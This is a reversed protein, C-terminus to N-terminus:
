EDDAGEKNDKNQRDKDSDPTASISIGTPTKLNLLDRWDVELGLDSLIAQSEEVALRIALSRDEVTERVIDEWDRGRANALDRPSILLNELAVVDAEAETKPDFYPWGPRSWRHNFLDIGRSAYLAIEQDSYWQRILWEYVPRHFQEELSDQVRKFGMQAQQLEGRYGHFTTNTTDLLVLTLPMGIAAGVMRLLMRAHDSWEGIQLNPSFAHMKEGKKGRIVLGPSIEELQATTSDDETQSRRSGLQFDNEREIFMAICSAIQQQVLKAFNTDEFMGTINFVPAFASVGRSQTVRKPDFIHLVLPNGDRDFAPRKEYGEPGVAVKDVNIERDILEPKQFWYRVVKEQDDLEVGHVIGDRTNAPSAVYQGEVLQVKTEDTPIAFIDGDIFRHRLTLGEMARFSFKSKVDCSSPKKAWKNFRQQHLKDIEKDGTQPILRFGSGVINGVARDTLQGIIADNRDMDRAYERIRNFELRSSYHADATGHLRHRIRQFRSPIGAQYAAKIKSLGSQFGKKVNAPAILDRIRNIM